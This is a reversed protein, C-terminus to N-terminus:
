NDLEGSQELWLYFDLEKIMEMDEIKSLMELEEVPALGAPSGKPGLAMVIVVVAVSALAAFASLPVWRHLERSRPTMQAEAQALADRRIQQLRQSVLPDIELTQKNLAGSISSHLPSSKENETM